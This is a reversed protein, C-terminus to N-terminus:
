WLVACLMLVYACGSVSPLIVHGVGVGLLALDELGEAVDPVDRGREFEDLSALRFVMEVDDGAGAEQADHGDVLGVGGCNVERLGDRRAGM